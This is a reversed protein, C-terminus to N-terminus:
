RRLLGNLLTDALKGAIHDADDVDHPRYWLYVTNLMGLLGNVVVHDATAFLGAEHGADITNQWVAQIQDRLQQRQAAPPGTLTGGDRVNIAVERRHAIISGVHLRVMERLRQEVDLPRQELEAMWALEADLYTRVVQWLLDEKSKVFYYIAGRQIGVREAIDSMATGHFGREAFLDIAAERLKAKTETGQATEGPPRGRRRGPPRAETAPSQSTV